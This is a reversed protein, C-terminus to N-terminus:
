AAARLLRKGKSVLQGIRQVNVGLAKSLEKYTVGSTQALAVAVAYRDGIVRRFAEAEDVSAKIAQARAVVDTLGMAREARLEVGERYPGPEWTWNATATM